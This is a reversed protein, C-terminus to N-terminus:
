SNKKGRIRSFTEPSMGLMSAIYQLPVQNFLEKNNELLQNYREEASKSLYSFVRDELTVFCGAIFRMEIETWNPLIEKLESYNSKDITYLKCDTLAQMNWRARQKFIFSNLDTIFYGKASIWQTIEKKDIGVFVRIFGERVFSFKDCYQGTKIYYDGKKLESETFLSTVKDMEENSIGFYSKIYNELDKM